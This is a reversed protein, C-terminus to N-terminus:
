SKWMKSLKSEVGHGMNGFVNSVSTGGLPENSLDHAGGRLESIKNCNIDRHTEYYEATAISNHNYRPYYTYYM